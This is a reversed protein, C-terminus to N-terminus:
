VRWSRRATDWKVSEARLDYFVQNGRIKELFFHSASKYDTDYYRMGVFTNSDVRLYYNPSGTLRYSSNSDIYKEKFTGYIKSAQPFLYQNAVWLFGALLCGGIMYPRLM